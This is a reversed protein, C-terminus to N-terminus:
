VRSALEPRWKVICLLEVELSLTADTLIVSGLGNSGYTLNPPCTLKVKGGVKMTQLGETWCPIM